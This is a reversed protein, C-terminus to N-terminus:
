FEDFEGEFPNLEASSKSSGVEISLAKFIPHDLSSVINNGLSKELDVFFDPWEEPHEKQRRSPTVEYVGQKKNAKLTVWGKGAAIVAAEMSEFWSNTSGDFLPLKQPVIRHEGTESVAQHFRMPRLHAALPPQLTTDIPYYKEGAYRGNVTIQEILCATEMSQGSLTFTTRPEFRQVAICENTVAPQQLESNIKCASFSSATQGIKKAANSTSPAKKRLFETTM